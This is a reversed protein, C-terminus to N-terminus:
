RAAQTIASIEQHLFTISVKQPGYVRAPESGPGYEDFWANILDNVGALRQEADGLRALLLLTDDPSAPNGNTANTRVRDILTDDVTTTNNTTM